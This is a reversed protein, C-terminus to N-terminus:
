DLACGMERRHVARASRLRLARARVTEEAPDRTVAVWGFGQAGVDAACGEPSRREVFLCSCTAKATLAAAIGSGTYLYAVGGGGACVV